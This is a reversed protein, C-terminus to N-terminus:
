KTRTEILHGFGISRDPSTFLDEATTLTILARTPREDPRGPVPDLVWVDTDKVTLDRPSNDLAYIYVHTRTEVEVRAGPKLDLLHDFPRGHGRRHGAVAFNGIQGPGATTDYWGVGRKLTEGNAGVLIPAEWGPELDPIRLLAIADGPKVADASSGAPLPTQWRRNLQEKEAAVAQIAPGDTGWYEWAIWGFSALGLVFLTLAVVLPPSFRRKARVPTHTM